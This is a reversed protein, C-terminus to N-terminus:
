NSWTYPPKTLKTRATPKVTINKNANPNTNFFFLFFGLLFFSCELFQTGNTQIEDSYIVHVTWQFDLRPGVDGAEQARLSPTLTPWVANIYNVGCHRVRTWEVPPARGRRRTATVRFDHRAAYIGHTIVMHGTRWQLASTLRNSFLFFHGM